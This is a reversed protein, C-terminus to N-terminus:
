SEDTMHAQAASTAALIDIDMKAIDGFERVREAAKIATAIGRKAQTTGHESVRNPDVDARMYWGDANVAQRSSELRRLIRCVVGTSSAGRPLWDLFGNSALLATAERPKVGPFQRLTTIVPDRLRDWAENNRLKFRKVKPWAVKSESPQSLGTDTITQM